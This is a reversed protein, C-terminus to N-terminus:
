AKKLSTKMAPAAPAAAAEAPSSSSDSSLRVSVMPQRGASALGLVATGPKRWLAGRLTLSALRGKFGRVLRKENVKDDFAM